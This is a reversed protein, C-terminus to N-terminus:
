EAMKWEVAKFMEGFGSESHIEPTLTNMDKLINTIEAITNRIETYQDIEERFGQLNASTVTKM